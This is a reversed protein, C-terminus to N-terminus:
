CQLAIGVMQSSPVFGVRDFKVMHSPTKRYILTQIGLTLLFMFVSLHQCSM